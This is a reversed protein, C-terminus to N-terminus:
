RPQEQLFATFANGKAQNMKLWRDGGALTGLMEKKRLAVGEAIASFALLLAFVPGRM